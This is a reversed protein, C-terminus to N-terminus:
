SKRNKAAQDLRSVRLPFVSAESWASGRCASPVSGGGGGGGGGGEGVDLDVNIPAAGEVRQPARGPWLVRCRM